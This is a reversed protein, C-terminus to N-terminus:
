RALADAVREICALSFGEGNQVDAIVGRLELALAQRDDRDRNCMEVIAESQDGLDVLVSMVDDDFYCKEQAQLDILQQALERIITASPTLVVKSVPEIVQGDIDGLVKALMQAKFAERVDEDTLPRHSVVEMLFEHEIGGTDKATFVGDVLEIDQDEFDANLDSDFQIHARDDGEYFVLDRGNEELDLTFGDVTIQSALMLANFLRTM